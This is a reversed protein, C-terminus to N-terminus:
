DVKKMKMEREVCMAVIKDYKRSFATCEPDDRLASYSIGQLQDVTEVQSILKRYHAITPAAM